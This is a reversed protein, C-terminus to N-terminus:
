LRDMAEAAAQAANEKIIPATILNTIGLLLSVTLCIAVLAVVPRLWPNWVRDLFEQRRAAEWKLQEQTKPAKPPRPKKEPKGGDKKAEGSDPAAKEGGEPAVSAPPKDAPEAPTEREKKPAAEAPAGRSYVFKKKEDAPPAAAAPNAKDGGNM